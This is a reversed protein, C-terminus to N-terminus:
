SAAKYLPIECSGQELPRHTFGGGLLPRRNLRRINWEGRILTSIMFWARGVTERWVPKWDPFAFRPDYYWLRWGTNFWLKILRVSELVPRTVPHLAIARKLRAHWAGLYRFYIVDVVPGFVSRQVISLAMLLYPIMFGIPFLIVAWQLHVQVTIAILVISCKTVLRRANWWTRLSETAKEVARRMKQWYALSGDARRRGFYIGAAAGMSLLWTARTLRSTLIAPLLTYLRLGFTAVVRWSYELVVLLYRWCFRLIDLIMEGAAVAVRWLFRVTGGILDTGTLYDVIALVVVFSVVAGAVILWHRRQSRTIM